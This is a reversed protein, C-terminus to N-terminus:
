LQGQARAYTKHCKEPVAAKAGTGCSWGHAWATLSVRSLAPGQAAAAHHCAAPALAMGEGAQEQGNTTRDPLSPRKYTRLM